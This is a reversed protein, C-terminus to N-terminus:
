DIANREQNMKWSARDNSHLSYVRQLRQQIRFVYVFAIRVPNFSSCACHVITRQSDITNILYFFRKREIIILLRIVYVNESSSNRRIELLINSICM